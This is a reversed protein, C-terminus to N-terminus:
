IYACKFCFIVHITFFLLPSYHRVCLSLSSCLTCLINRTPKSLPELPMSCHCCPFIEKSVVMLGNGYRINGYLLSTTQSENDFLYIDINGFSCFTMESFICFLLGTFKSNNKSYSFTCLYRLSYLNHEHMGQNTAYGNKGEQSTLRYEM